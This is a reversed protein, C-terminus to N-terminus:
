RLVVDGLSDLLTLEAVSPLGEWDGPVSVAFAGLTNAVQLAVEPPEGRILSALYGAVFADGAGVPDVVPVVVAPAAYECGQILATYGLEGQKIVVQKPGLDSLAVACGPADLDGVVMQAEHHSAFVVDALAAITRFQEAADEATWLGIRHNLDFSVMVGASRAVNIAHHVAAHASESLAPTIGTVHLVRAGEVLERSVDDPQLQSGASNSRVYFVRSVKATRREKVMIGTPATRDVHLATVDVGEARLERAILEGMPDDGVRGIWASSVGLRRVGIAVNTEAGGVALRMSKNHRLPGIHESHFVCMTEGLTVLAPLTGNRDTDRAVESSSTM